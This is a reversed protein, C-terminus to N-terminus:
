KEPSTNAQIKFTNKKDNSGGSIDLTYAAPGKKALTAKLNDDVYIFPLKIQYSLEGGKPTTNGQVNISHSKDKSGGIFSLDYTSPAKKTIFGEMEIKKFSHFSSELSANVKKSDMQLDLQGSLKMKKDNLNGEVVWTKSVHDYITDLSALKFKPAFLSSTLSAMLKSASQTDLSSEVKLEVNKGNKEFKFEANFSDIQLKSMKAELVMKEFGNLKSNLEVRFETGKKLDQKANLQIGLEVHGGKIDIIELKTEVQDVPLFGQHSFPWPVRKRPVFDLHGKTKWGASKWGPSKFEGEMGYNQSAADLARVLKGNFDIYDTSGLTVKLMLSIKSGNEVAYKQIIKFEDPSGM